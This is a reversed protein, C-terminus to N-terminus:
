VCVGVWKAKVIMYIKIIAQFGLTPQNTGDIRRAARPHHHVLVCPPKGLHGFFYM